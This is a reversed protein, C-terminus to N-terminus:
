GGNTWGKGMSKRADTTNTVANKRFSTMYDSCLSSPGGAPAAARGHPSAAAAQNASTGARGCASDRVSAGTM